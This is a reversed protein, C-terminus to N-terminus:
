NKKFLYLEKNGGDNRKLNHFTEKEIEMLPRNDVSKEWNFRSNQRQKFALQIQM